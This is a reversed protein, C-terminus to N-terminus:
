AGGALNTAALQVANIIHTYNACRCLNGSLAAMIEPVTPNSNVKLLAAAASVMGPGCYGCQAGDATVWAEQLANVVPDGTAIEGTTITHGVARLAMVNCSEYAKGDILVTCGGCMSRNCPRKTAVLNLDERLVDVLMTRPWVNVSYTKGNVNLSITQEGFPNTAVLPPSSPATATNTETYQGYTFTSTVSSSSQEKDPKLQMSQLSVASVGVVAAATATGKLLTRRSVKANAVESIANGSEVVPKEEPLSSSGRKRGKKETM